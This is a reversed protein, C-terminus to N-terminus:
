RCRAAARPWWPRWCSRCRTGGGGTSHKDLVPADLDDWALVTGSDRMALTLAVTEDRSLGRQFAAMAWAAVQADSLSGDTIGQVLEGVEGDSLREGDRTRRILEQAPTM